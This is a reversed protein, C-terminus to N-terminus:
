LPLMAWRLIGHGVAPGNTSVCGTSVPLPDPAQLGSLRGLFSFHDLGACRLRVAKREGQAAKHQL